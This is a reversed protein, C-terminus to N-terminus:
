RKGDDKPGRGSAKSGSILGYVIGCMTVMALIIFVGAVHGEAVGLYRYVKLFLLMPVFSALLSAAYTSGYRWGRSAMQIFSRNLTVSFVAALAAFVLAWFATTLM